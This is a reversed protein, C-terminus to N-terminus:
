ARLRRKLSLWWGYPVRWWWGAQQEPVLKDTLWQHYLHKSTIKPLMNVFPTDIPEIDTIHCVVGHCGHKVLAHVKFEELRYKAVRAEGRLKSRIGRGVRVVRELRAEALLARQKWNTPKKIKKRPV